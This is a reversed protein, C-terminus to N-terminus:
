VHTVGRQLAALADLATTVHHRMDPDPHTALAELGRAVVATLAEVQAATLNPWVRPRDLHAAAFNPPMYYRDAVDETTSWDDVTTDYHVDTDSTWPNTGDCRTPGTRAQWGAASDLWLTVPTVLTTYTDITCPENETPFHRFTM